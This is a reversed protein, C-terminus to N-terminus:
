LKLFCVLKDDKRKKSIANAIMNKTVRGNLNTRIAWETLGKTGQAKEYIDKILHLQYLQFQYLQFQYLPTRFMAQSSKPTEPQCILFNNHLEIYELM